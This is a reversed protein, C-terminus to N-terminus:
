GVALEYLADPCREENAQGDSLALLRFGHREYFRRSGANDQFTYLRIPPSLEGLARQLLQTGFGRGVFEPGVYLHDIWSVGGEQSTAIMGVIQGDTEAVTVGGSPVLVTRVWEKVEDDTHALPACTVFAKRSALYLAAVEGADDDTAPRLTAESV